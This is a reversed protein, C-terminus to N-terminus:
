LKHSEMEFATNDVGNNTSAAEKEKNTLTSELAKEKSVIENKKDKKHQIYM